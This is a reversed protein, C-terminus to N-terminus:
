FEIRGSAVGDKVRDRPFLDVKNDYPGLTQPRTKRPLTAAPRLGSLRLVHPVKLACGLGGHDDLVNEDRDVEVLGRVARELQARIERLLKPGSERKQVYHVNRWICIRVEARGQGWGIHQSHKFVMRALREILAKASDPRRDRRARGNKRGSNRRPLDQGGDALLTDVQNHDPSLTPPPKLV